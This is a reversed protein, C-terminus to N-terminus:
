LVVVIVFCVVVFLRSVSIEPTIKHKKAVLFFSFLVMIIIGVTYIGCTAEAPVRLRKSCCEM